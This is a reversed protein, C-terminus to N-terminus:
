SLVSSGIFGEFVIVMLLDLSLRSFFGGFVRPLLFL